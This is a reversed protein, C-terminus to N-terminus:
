FYSSTNITSTVTIWDAKLVRLFYDRIMEIMKESIKMLSIPNGELDQIYDEYFIIVPFIRGDRKTFGNFPKAVRIDDDLMISLMEDIPSKYSPLIQETGADFKRLVYDFWVDEEMGGEEKAQQSILVQMEKNPNGIVVTLHSQYVHSM